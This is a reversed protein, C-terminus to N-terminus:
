MTRAMLTLFVDQAGGIKEEYPHRARPKLINLYAAYIWKDNERRFLKYCCGDSVILHRCNPFDKAYRKVQREAYALGGWFRKSELIMVCNKPDKNQREYPKEFFAIDTAKWEIKLRQESWGLAFLLPLILFARTEHEKIDAGYSSYWRVLRKIRAITQALDEADKPRLGNNILRDILDEDELKPAIEPLRKAPRPAGAQFIQNIQEIARQNYVRIFAGRSLGDVFTKPPAEVWEVERWHQLDWGEVDEFLESYKYEGTIRGVALIEWQRHHPKKVIVMDGIRVKEAFRVVQARWDRHGKYFDKNNFYDGRNGSGVLMVGFTKFVESYDRESDGAAIQWYNM